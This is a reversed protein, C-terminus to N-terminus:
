KWPSIAAAISFLALWLLRLRAARLSLRSPSKGVVVIWLAARLGVWAISAILAGSLLLSCSLAAALGLKTFFASFRPEGQQTFRVCWQYVGLCVIPWASLGFLCVAASRSTQAERLVWRTAVMLPPALVLGPITFALLIPYAMLRSRELICSAVAVLVFVILGANRGRLSTTSLGALSSAFVAGYKYFLEARAGMSLLMELYVASLVCLTALASVLFFRLSFHRTGFIQELAALTQSAFVNFVGGQRDGPRTAGARGDVSGTGEDERMPMRSLSSLAAAGVIFSLARLIAETSM